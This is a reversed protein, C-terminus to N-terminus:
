KREVRVLISDIFFISETMNKGTKLVTEGIKTVRDDSIKNESVNLTFSIIPITKHIQTGNNSIVACSFVLCTFRLFPIIYKTIEDNKTKTEVEIILCSLIKSSLTGSKTKRVINNPYKTETKENLVSELFSASFFYVVLFITGNQTSM